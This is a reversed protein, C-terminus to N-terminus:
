RTVLIQNKLKNTFGQNVEYKSFFGGLVTGKQPASYRLKADLQFELFNKPNRTDSAAVTGSGSYGIVAAGIIANPNLVDGSEKTDFSKTLLNGKFKFEAGVASGSGNKSDMVVPNFDFSGKSDPATQALAAVSFLMLALASLLPIPTKM